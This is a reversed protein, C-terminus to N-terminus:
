CIHFLKSKGLGKKRSTLLQGMADSFAAGRM